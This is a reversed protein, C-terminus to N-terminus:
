CVIYSTLVIHLFHEVQQVVDMEESGSVCSCPLNAINLVRCHNGVM